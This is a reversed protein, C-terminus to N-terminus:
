DNYARCGFIFTAKDLGALSLPNSSTISGLDIRSSTNDEANRWVEGEPFVEKDIGTNDGLTNDAYNKLDGGLWYGVLGKALPHQWNIEQPGTPKRGPPLPQWM